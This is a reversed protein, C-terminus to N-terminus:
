ASASWLWHGLGPARECTRGPARYSHRAEPSRSGLPVPRTVKPAPHGLPHRTVHAQVPDAASQLALQICARPPTGLQPSRRQERVLPPKMTARMCRSSSWWTSLRPHSCSVAAPTAPQRSPLRPGRRVSPWRWATPVRAPALSSMTRTSSTARDGSLQVQHIATSTTAATPATPPQSSSIAALTNTSPARDDHRTQQDTTPSSLPRNLNPPKSQTPPAQQPHPAPQHKRAHATNSSRPHARTIFPQQSIVQRPRTPNATSTTTATTSQRTPHPQHRRTRQDVIRSRQSRTQLETTVVVEAPAVRQREFLGSRRMLRNSATRGPDEGRGATM